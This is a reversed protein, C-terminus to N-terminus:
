LANPLTSLAGNMIASRAAVGEQVTRLIEEHDLQELTIKSAIL